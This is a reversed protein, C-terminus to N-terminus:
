ALAVREAVQYQLLFEPTLGAQLERDTRLMTWVPLRWGDAIMHVM